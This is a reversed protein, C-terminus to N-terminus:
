GQDERSPRVGNGESWAEEEEGYAAAGCVGALHVCAYDTGGPRLEGHDPLTQLERRLLLIAGDFDGREPEEVRRDGQLEQVGEGGNGFDHRNQPGARYM